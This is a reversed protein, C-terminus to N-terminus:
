KLANEIAELRCDWYYFEETLAKYTIQRTRQSSVVFDVLQQRQEPNLVLPRGTSKKPTPAKINLAYQVQKVHLDLMKAIKHDTKGCHYAM